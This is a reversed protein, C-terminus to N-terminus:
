AGSVRGSLYASGGPTASATPCGVDTYIRDIREQWARASYQAEHLKRACNRMGTGGEEVVRLASRLQETGGTPDFRLGVGASEMAEATTIRDSLVLPVGASLAELMVLPLSEACMSPLVLGRYQSLRSLIVERPLPGLFDVNPRGAVQRRVSPELPGAGVVDLRMDLPWIRLLERIGKEDSLRGVYVWAASPWSASDATPVFNPVVDVDRGYAARYVEAATDNLTIVRAVRGPILHLAGVPSSALALPASAIASSRYCTRRIAPLVPLALCDTCAHGDRFLLGNACLPRFNHMTAVTRAGWRRLWRVGWNPFTNHLHVVDPAFATLEDDPSRGWGTAVTAASALSYLRRGAQESTHRAILRVEYGSRALQRVQDLVVENEGSPRSADYFSHVVAIKM